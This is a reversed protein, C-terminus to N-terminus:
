FVFPCIPMYSRTVHRWSILFIFKMVYTQGGSAGFRSQATLVERTHGYRDTKGSGRHNLPNVSAHVFAANMANCERSFVKM